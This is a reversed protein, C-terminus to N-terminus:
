KTLDPMTFGQVTERKICKAVIDQDYGSGSDLPSRLTGTYYIRAGDAIWPTDGLTLDGKVSVNGHIRADKLNFNGNVYVDGYIHRQGNGLTLNGNVYTAGPKIESGMGASGGDLTVDGGISINSVFIGGGGGLSLGETIVVTAGEGIVTVGGTICDGQM